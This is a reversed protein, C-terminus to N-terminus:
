LSPPAALARALPLDRRYIDDRFHVEGDEVWSTRYVVHVPIRELLPITTEADVAAAAAVAEPPWRADSELLRFALEFPRELRICGSSFDRRERPRGRLATTSVIRVTTAGGLEGARGSGRSSRLASSAARLGTSALSGAGGDQCCRGVVQIRSSVPWSRSSRRGNRWTSTRLSPGPRLPRCGIGLRRGIPDLVKM